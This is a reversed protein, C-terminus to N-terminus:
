SKSIHPLFLDHRILVYLVTGPSHALRTTNSFTWITDNGTSNRLSVMNSECVYLVTIKDHMLCTIMAKKSLSKELGCCLVNPVCNQIHLNFYLMRDTTQPHGTPCGLKGANNQSRRAVMCVKMFTTQLISLPWFYCQLQSLTATTKRAVM